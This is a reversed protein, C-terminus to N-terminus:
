KGLAARVPPLLDKAGIQAALQEWNEKGIAALERYKADSIPVKKMGGGPGLLRNLAAANDARAQKVIKEGFETVVSRVMPRHAEPVSRWAAKTLVFGGSAYAFNRESVYSLDGAWGLAVAGAPSNYVTDVGGSKLQQAVTLIDLPRPSAGLVRFTESAVQDGEWVWLKARRLAEVDEIRKKGFLHVLGTEGPGLLVHETEEEFRAELRAWIAARARDAEPESEVLFPLELVRFAPLLLGVGQGTFFAGDLGRGLKQAVKSEDGLKGGLFLRFSVQGDSRRKVEEAMAEILQGWASEAPALSALKLPKAAASLPLAVALACLTSVIQTRM